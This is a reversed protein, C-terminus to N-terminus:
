RKRGDGNIAGHHALAGAVWRLAAFADGMLLGVKGISRAPRHHFRVFAPNGVRPLAFALHAHALRLAIGAHRSAIRM